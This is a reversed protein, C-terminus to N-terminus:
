NGSKGTVGLIERKTAEMLIDHTGKEQSEDQPKRQIYKGDPQMDWAQRHDNFLTELIHWLKKQLSPEEIPTICEVRNNLNRYMWDASGIFYEPKGENHFYYIREHELFRGIVSIVQIHDSLGPVRPKLCCFGRVNLDIRVGAQSAEYLKRVIGRDELSNM